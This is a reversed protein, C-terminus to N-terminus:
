PLHLCRVSNHAQADHRFDYLRNGVSILILAVVKADHILENCKKNIGENHINLEVNEQQRWTAANHVGNPLGTTSYQSKEKM